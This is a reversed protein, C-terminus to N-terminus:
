RILYASLIRHDTCSGLTAPDVALADHHFRQKPDPAGARVEDQRIESDLRRTSKPVRILANPVATASIMLIRCVVRFMAARTSIPRALQSVAVPDCGSLSRQCASPM